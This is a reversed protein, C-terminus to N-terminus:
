TKFNHKIEIEETINEEKKSRLFLIMIIKKQANIKNREKEIKKTVLDLLLLWQM